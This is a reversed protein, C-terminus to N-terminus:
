LVHLNVSFCFGTSNNWCWFFNRATSTFGWQVYPLELCWIFTQQISYFGWKREEILVVFKNYNKTSYEKSRWKENKLLICFLKIIKQKEKLSLISKLLFSSNRSFDKTPFTISLAWGSRSKALAISLNLLRWNSGSLLSRFIKLWDFLEKFFTSPM